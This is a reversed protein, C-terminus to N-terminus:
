FVAFFIGFVFLSVLVKFLVDYNALVSASSTYEISARLHLWVTTSELWFYPSLSLVAQVQSSLRLLITVGISSEEWV